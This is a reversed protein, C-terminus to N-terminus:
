IQFEVTCIFEHESVKCHFEGNNKAVTERVNQLGIGHNKSDEKNTKLAGDGAFRMGAKDASNAIRIQIYREGSRFEIHLFRQEEPQQKVAEVANQILNSFITCIDIDSLALRADFNGTITIWSCDKFPALYYNLIADVINNGTVFNHSRIREMNEYLGDIYSEAEKYSTEHILDKLCILHKSMDHRYRRTAEEKELLMEYYQVQQQQLKEETKLMRKMKEYNFRTYFVFAMLFGISLISLITLVLGFSYYRENSSRSTVYNFGVMIFLLEAVVFVLVILMVTQLYNLRKEEFFYGKFHKKVLVAAMVVLFSIVSGFFSQTEESWNWRYYSCARIVAAVLENVYILVAMCVPFWGIKKHEPRKVTMFPIIIILLFILLEYDLRPLSTTFLILCYGISFFVGLWRRRIQGGFLLVLGTMYKALEIGFQFILETKEIM